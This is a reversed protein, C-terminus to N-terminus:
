MATAGKFEAVDADSLKFWEGNLRLPAFHRHWHSEVQSPNAAEIVHVLKVPFPLQVKLQTLRKELNTTMGIKFHDGAQLLYVKGPTVGNIPAVRKATTTKKKKKPKSTDVQFGQFFFDWVKRLHQEDEIGVGPMVYTGNAASIAEFLEQKFDPGSEVRQGYTDSYNRSSDPFRAPIVRKHTYRNWEATSLAYPITLRGGRGGYAQRTYIATVPPYALTDEEEFVLRGNTVGLWVSTFQGRLSEPSAGPTALKVVAGEFSVSAPFLRSEAQAINLAYTNLVESPFPADSRVLYASSFPGGVTQSFTYASKPLHKKITINVVTM